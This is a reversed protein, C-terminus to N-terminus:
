SRCATPCSPARACAIVLRPIPAARHMGLLQLTDEAHFPRDGVIMEFLVVGVAYIDTRADITAARCRRSPRWTTRRASSWTRRRRTAASTAAAPARARFRPHPRARRARDGRQDHHERAQRRPPVIEQAHAHALGSPSRGRWARARAAAAAPGQRHLARLTIGAVFDMVLYPADEWVGFDLVSVCNPHTLKSMVRTEREFRAQFETDNAFSAHLFKIAVLKGVPVREAKYVAGMSGAAMVELIKYRGDVLAVSGIQLERAHPGDISTLADVERRAPTRRRRVRAGDRLPLRGRAGERDRRHVRVAVRRRDRAPEVQVYAIEASFVLLEGVLDKARALQVVHTHDDETILTWHFDDHDLLVVEPTGARVICNAHGGLWQWFKDFTLTTAVAALRKGTSGM